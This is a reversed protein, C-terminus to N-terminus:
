EADFERFQHNGVFTFKDLRADAIANIVNVSAEYSAESKPEFRIIPMEAQAAASALRAELQEGSVPEGNWLVAGSRQVVLLVSGYDSVLGPGPGPLDVDLRHTAIPISM